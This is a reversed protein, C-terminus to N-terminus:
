PLLYGGEGIGPRQAYNKVSMMFLM